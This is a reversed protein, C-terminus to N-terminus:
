FSTYGKYGTEVIELEIQYLIEDDTIKTLKSCVFKIFHDIHSESAEKNPKSAIAAAINNTAGSADQFLSNDGDRKRTNPRKDINDNLIPSVASTSPLTSLYQHDVLTEDIDMIDDQETNFVEQESEALNISEEIVNEVESAEVSTVCISNYSAEKAKSNELIFQMPKYYWITPYNIENLGAGSKKTIVYKRYENLFNTRLASFKAKVEGIDQDWNLHDEHYWEEGFSKKLLNNVAKRKDQSIGHQKTVAKLSANELKKGCKLLLNYKKSPDNSRYNIKSNVLVLKNHKKFEKKIYVRKQDNIGEMKKLIELLDTECLTTNEFEICGKTYCRHKEKLIVSEHVVEDFNISKAIKSEEIQIVPLAKHRPPCGFNCQSLEEFSPTEKLLIGALYGVNTKYNMNSEALM